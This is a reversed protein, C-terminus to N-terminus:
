TANVGIEGKDHTTVENSKGESSVMDEEDTLSKWDPPPEKSRLAFVVNRTITADAVKPALAILLKAYEVPKERKLKDLM